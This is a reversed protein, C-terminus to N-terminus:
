KVKVKIKKYAGNQAYAYVYCTGKKLKSGEIGNIGMANGTTATLRLPKNGRFSRVKRIGAEKELVCITLTNYGFKCELSLTYLHEPVAATINKQNRM